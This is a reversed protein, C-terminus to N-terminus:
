RLDRTAPYFTATATIVACFRFGEIQVHVGSIVNDFTEYALDMPRSCAGCYLGAEQGGPPYIDGIDM